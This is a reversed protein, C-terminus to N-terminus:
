YVADFMKKSYLLTRNRYLVVTVVVHVFTVCFLHSCQAVTDTHIHQVKSTVNTSSSLYYKM